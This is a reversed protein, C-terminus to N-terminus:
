IEIFFKSLFHLVNDDRRNGAVIYMLYRVEITPSFIGSMKLPIQATNSRYKLPIQATNEIIFIVM